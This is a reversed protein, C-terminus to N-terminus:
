GKSIYRVHNKSPFIERERERKREIYIYIIKMYLLNNCNSGFGFSCVKYEFKLGCAKKVSSDFVM